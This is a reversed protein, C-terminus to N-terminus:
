GALEPWAARQWGALAARRLDPSEPLQLPVDRLDVLLGGLGGGVELAFRRGRGGLVVGDRFELEATRAVGPPLEVVELHGGVLDRTVPTAGAHVVLRGVARGASLGQPVVTTALPALLDEALEALLVRREAEDEITGIPGLLRAHDCALQTVGPRRLVDLIALAVAAPPAVGWVGGSALILDPVPLDSFSPTARVLRELAGRAATLRLVAGDGYAEAWPALWLERLRDRLRPRDLAVTSWSVIGDLQASEPEPSALGAEPVIATREDRPSARHGPRRGAVARVGATLGIEITEVRRDLVTALSATSRVIGLRADTPDTAVRALAGRLREDAAETGVGEPLAILAGAKGASRRRAGLGPVHESAAGVLVITLEPRREIAASVLDAVLRIGRREETGVSAGAAIVVGGVDADLVASIMRLPDDRELSLSGTHWGSGSLASEVHSRRRESAALVILRRTSSTRAVIRPWEAAPGLSPPPSIALDVPGGPEGSSPLDPEMGAIGLEGALPPDARAIRALLLGAIQDPEVGSPFALSGLLRWRGGLRAVLAVSTTATGLDLAFFARPSSSVV